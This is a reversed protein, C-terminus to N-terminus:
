PIVLVLGAHILNPNNGIKAKNAQYIKPWLAGNGYFEQAIGWLTSRKTPWPTVTVTRAPPPQPRGSPPAVKPPGVPVPGGGTPTIVPTPPLTVPPPPPPPPAGPVTIPPGVDGTPLTGDPLIGPATDTPTPGPAPVMINRWFLYALVLLAVIVTILLPKNKWLEKWINKVTDM